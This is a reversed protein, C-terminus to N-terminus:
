NPRFESINFSHNEWSYLNIHWVGGVKSFSEKRYSWFQSVIKRLSPCVSPYVSMALEVWKIISILLKYIYNKTDSVEEESRQLSRVSIMM